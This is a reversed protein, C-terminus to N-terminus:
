RPGMFHWSTRKRWQGHKVAMYCVAICVFKQVSIFLVCVLPVFFWASMTTEIVTVDSL